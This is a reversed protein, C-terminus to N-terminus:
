NVRKRQKCLFVIGSSRAAGLRPGRPYRARDLSVWSSGKRLRLQELAVYAEGFDDCSLEVRYTLVPEKKSGRFKITIAIPSRSGPVCNRSIRGRM